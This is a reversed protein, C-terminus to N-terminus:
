QKEGKFVDIQQKLSAYIKELEEESAGRESFDLLLQVGSQLILIQNDTLNEKHREILDEINRKWIAVSRKLNEIREKEVEWSLQVAIKSIIQAMFNKSQAVEEATLRSPSHFTSKVERGSSSDKASVTLLGNADIEFAVEIKMMGRPAPSIGGLFVSGLLHNDAAMPREGEFVNVKIETQNDKATNFIESKRTPITTNREILKTAVGGLTEISLSLPAIDLLLADTKDGSLVSALVAAGQAVCIEPDVGIYPEKGVTRHVLDRVAPIRSGGGIILAADLKVGDVGADKMARQIVEEAGKLLSQSLEDFKERQITIDLNQPPHSGSQIFGPLYIQSFHASSLEIKAKTVAEKLVLQQFLELSNFDNIDTYATQAVYDMLVKDFDDGGLQGDGATSKVECVDGGVEVVSVDLTGGGLDFILLTKDERSHLSQYYFAAATAENILRLVELGALEAAQRIAWRQNISYNAPIAIVVKEVKEGLQYEVELKLRALILGAIAEPQEHLWGWLHKREKGLSRKISSITLHDIHYRKSHENAEWGVFISKETEPTILVLSPISKRGRRDPIVVPSGREMVAAITKTTGFDIGIIKSMLNKGEMEWM